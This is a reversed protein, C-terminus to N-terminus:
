PDLVFKAPDAYEPSSSIEGAEIMHPHTARATAAIAPDISSEDYACLLTVPSAAFALNLFSEFQTWLRTESKSRGKWIPEGLIRIWPAGTALREAVAAKFSEIVAAPTTLFRDSEVFEVPKADSGLREHFLAIRPRSLVALVGESRELGNALFPVAVESFEDETEYFLAQHV